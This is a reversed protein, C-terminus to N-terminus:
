IKKYTAKPDVFLKENGINLLKFLEDSIITYQEVKGNAGGAAKETFVKGTIDMLM